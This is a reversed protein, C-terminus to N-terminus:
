FWRPVMYALTNIPGVNHTNIIAIGQHFIINLLPRATDLEAMVLQRRYSAEFDGLALLHSSNLLSELQRAPQATLSTTGRLTGDKALQVQGWASIEQNGKLWVAQDVQLQAGNKLGNTISQALATFPQAIQGQLVRYLTPTLYAWGNFKFRMLIEDVDWGIMNKAGLQFTPMDGGTQQVYGLMLSQLSYTKGGQASLRMTRAELTTSHQQDNQLFTFKGGDQQIQWVQTNGQQPIIRLVWTQPLTVVLRSKEHFFGSNMILDPLEAVMLGGQPLPVRVLVNPLRMRVQSLQPLWQPEGYSISGGVRQALTTALNSEAYRLSVYYVGIALAVFLCLALLIGALFRAM